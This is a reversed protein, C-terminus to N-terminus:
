SSIKLVTGYYKEKRNSDAKLVRHEDNGALRRGHPFDGFFVLHVTRERSPRELQRVERRVDHLHDLLVTLGDTERQILEPAADGVAPFFLAFEEKRFLRALARGDTM